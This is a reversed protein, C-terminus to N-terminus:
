KQTMAARLGLPGVFDQNLSFLAEQTLGKLIEAGSGEM